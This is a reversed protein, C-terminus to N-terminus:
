RYFESTVGNKFFDFYENVKRLVSQALLMNIADHNMSFPGASNTVPM